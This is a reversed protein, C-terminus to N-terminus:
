KNVKNNRRSRTGWKGNADERRAKYSQKKGSEKGTRMGLSEDERADYGQSYEDKPRKDNTPRKTTSLELFKKIGAEMEDKSPQKLSIVDKDGGINYKKTAQVFTRVRSTSQVLIDTDGDETLTVSERTIIKYEKKLFKIIDGFKREIENEFQGRPHIEKMLVDSHYSIMMKNAAFKVRFGDMLRSDLIPHGEERNLGIEEDMHQYGDYANAAAQNLGKIIDLITAM